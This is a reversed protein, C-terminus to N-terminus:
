AAIHRLNPRRSLSKKPYRRRALRRSRNKSKRLTEEKKTPQPPLSAVRRTLPDRALGELPKTCIASDTQWLICREVFIKWSSPMQIRVKVEDLRTRLRLERYTVKSLIVTM